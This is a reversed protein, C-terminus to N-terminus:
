ISPGQLEGDDRSSTRYDELSIRAFLRLVGQNWCMRWDETWDFLMTEPVQLCMKMLSCATPLARLEWPARNPVHTYIM